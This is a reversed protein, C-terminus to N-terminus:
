PVQLFTCTPKQNVCRCCKSGTICYKIRVKAPVITPPYDYTISFNITLFYFIRHKIREGRFRSFNVFTRVPSTGITEPREWLPPVTTSEFSAYPLCHLVYLELLFFFLKLYMMRLLPLFRCNKSVKKLKHFHLKPIYQRYSISDLM